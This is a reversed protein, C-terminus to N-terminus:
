IFAQLLHLGLYKRADIRSFSTALKFKHGRTRSDPCFSFFLHPDIDMIGHIIKYVTILDFQLRRTKLTRLGLHSLREEYPLDRLNPLLRTFRRQVKELVEIDRVYYPCWVVSCYELIPRVLAKNYLTSLTHIGLFKFALKIISIMKQAKAAIKFCHESPKLDKTFIHGLDVIKDIEPITVGDIDYKVLPNNRGIHLCACKDINLRLLWTACWQSIQNLDDQM